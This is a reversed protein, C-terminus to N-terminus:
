FKIIKMQFNRFITKIKKTIETPKLKQRHTVELYVKLKRKKLM